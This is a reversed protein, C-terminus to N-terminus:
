DEEIHNEPQDTDVEKSFSTDFLEYFKEEQQEKPLKKWEDMTNFWQAMFPRLGNGVVYHALGTTLGKLRNATKEELGMADVVPHMMAEAYPTFIKVAM